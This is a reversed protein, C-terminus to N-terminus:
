VDDVDDQGGFWGDAAPFCFSDQSDDAGQDIDVRSM